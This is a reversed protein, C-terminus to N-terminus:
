RSLEYASDIRSRTGCKPPLGQAQHFKLEVDGALRGRTSWVTGDTLSFRHTATGFGDLEVDVVSDGFPRRDYQSALMIEEIRACRHAGCHEVGALLYFSWVEMEFGPAGPIAVPSARTVSWTDGPTVREDTLAPLSQRIALRVIEALPQVASWSAADLRSHDGLRIVGVTGLAGVDLLLQLGTMQRAGMPTVDNEGLRVSLDFREIGLDLRALNEHQGSTRTRVRAKMERRLTQGQEVWDLPAVVVTQRLSLNWTCEQGAFHRYRLGEIFPPAAPAALAILLFCLKTAAPNV